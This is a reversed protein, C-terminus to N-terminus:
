TGMVIVFRTFVTAEKLLSLSPPPMLFGELVQVTFSIIIVIVIIAIIIISISTTSTTTTYIYM